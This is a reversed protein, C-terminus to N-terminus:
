KASLMKALQRAWKHFAAEAHPYATVYPNNGLRLGKGRSKRKEAILGLLHGQSDKLRAEFATTGMTVAGPLTNSYLDVIEYSASTEVLAPEITLTKDDPAAGSPLIEHSPRLAEEFQKQM